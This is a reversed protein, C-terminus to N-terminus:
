WWFCGPTYVHLNEHLCIAHLRVKEVLMVSEPTQLVDYM